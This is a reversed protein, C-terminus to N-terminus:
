HHIGRTGYVVYHEGEVRLVREVHVPHHDVEVDDGPKLLAWHPFDEHVSGDQLYLDYVFGGQITAVSTM